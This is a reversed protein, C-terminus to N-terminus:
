KGEGEPQNLEVTVEKPVQEYKSIYILGGIGYGPRISFRKYHVTEKTFEATVKPTAKSAAM